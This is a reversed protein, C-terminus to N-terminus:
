HWAVATQRIKHYGKSPKANTDDQQHGREQLMGGAHRVVAQEGKYRVDYLSRPTVQLRLGKTKGPHVKEKWERMTTEVLIEASAVEEAIGM